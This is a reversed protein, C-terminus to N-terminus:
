TTGSAKPQKEAKPVAETAADLKRKASLLGAGHLNVRGVPSLDRVSQDIRELTALARDFAMASASPAHLPNNSSGGGGGVPMPPLPADVDGGGSGTGGGGGGGGNYRRFLEFVRARNAERDTHERQMIGRLMHLELTLRNEADHSERVLATLSRNMTAAAKKIHVLEARSLVCECKEGATGLQGLEDLKALALNYVKVSAQLGRELQNGSM